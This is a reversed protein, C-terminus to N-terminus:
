NITHIKLIFGAIQPVDFASILCVLLYASRNVQKAKKTQFIIMSYLLYFKGLTETVIGRM